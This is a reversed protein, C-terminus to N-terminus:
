KHFLRRFFMKVRHFISRNQEVEAKYLEYSADLQSYANTPREQLRRNIRAAELTCAAGIVSMVSPSYKEMTERANNLSEKSINM